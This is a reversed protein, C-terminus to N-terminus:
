DDDSVRNTANIDALGYVDLTRRMMATMSFRQRVFSPAEAQAKTM